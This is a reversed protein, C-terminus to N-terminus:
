NQLLKGTKSEVYGSVSGDSRMLKLKNGTFNLEIRDINKEVTQVWIVTGSGAGIKILNNIDQNFLIYHNPRLSEETMSKIKKGLLIKTKETCMNDSPNNKHFFLYYDGNIDKDVWSWSLMGKHCNGVINNSAMNKLSTPDITNPESSDVPEVSNELMKNESLEEEKKNINQDDSDNANDISQNSFIAVVERTTPIFFITYIARGEVGNRNRLEYKLYANKIPKIIKILIIIRIDRLNWTGVQQGLLNFVAEKRNFKDTIREAYAEDIQLSQPFLNPAVKFYAGRGQVFFDASVDYFDYPINRHDTRFPYANALYNVPFGHNDFNYNGIQRSLECKYFYYKNFEIIDERKKRYKDLESKELRKKEFENKASYYEKFMERYDPNNLTSLNIPTELLADSLMIAENDTMMRSNNYARVADHQKFRGWYLDNKSDLDQMGIVSKRLKSSTKQAALTPYFNFIIWILLLYAINKKM